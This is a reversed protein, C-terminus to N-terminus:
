THRRKAPSASATWWQCSIWLQWCGASQSWWLSPPENGSRSNSSPNLSCTQSNWAPQEKERTLSYFTKKWVSSNGKVTLSWVDWTLSVLANQWQHFPLHHILPHSMRIKWERWGLLWCYGTNILCTNDNIDTDTRLNLENLFLVLM